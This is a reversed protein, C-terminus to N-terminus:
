AVLRHGTDYEVWQTPEVSAAHHADDRALVERAQRAWQPGWSAAMAELAMRAAMRDGSVLAKCAHYYVSGREQWAVSRICQEVRWSLSQSTASVMVAERKPDPRPAVTSIRLQDIAARDERGRRLFGALDSPMPSAVGDVMVARGDDSVRVSYGARQLAHAGFALAQEGHMGQTEHAGLEYSCRVFSRSGVAYPDARWSGRLGNLRADAILIDIPRDM